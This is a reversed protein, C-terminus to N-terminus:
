CVNDLLILVPFASILQMGSETQKLCDTYLSSVDNLPLECPYNNAAAHLPIGRGAHRALPDPCTPGLLRARESMTRVIKQIEGTRAAM